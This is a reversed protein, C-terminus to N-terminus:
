EFKSIGDVAYQISGCHPLGSPSLSVPYWEGSGPPRRIWATVGPKRGQGWDRLHRPPKRARLPLKLPPPPPPRRAHVPHLRVRRRGALQPGREERQKTPPETSRSHPLRRSTTPTPTVQDPHNSPLSRGHQGSSTPSTPGYGTSVYRGM